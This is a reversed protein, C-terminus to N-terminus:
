KCVTPPPPPVHTSVDKVQRARWEEGEEEEILFASLLPSARTERERLVFWMIEGVVDERWYCLSRTWQVFLPEKEKTQTAVAAQHLSQCRQCRPACLGCVCVCVSLYAHYIWGKERITAEQM